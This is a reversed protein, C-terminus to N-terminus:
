MIFFDISFHFFRFFADRRPMASFPSAAGHRGSFAFSVSENASAYAPLPLLLTNYPMHLRYELRKGNKATDLSFAIKGAPKNPPFSRRFAKREYQSFRCAPM